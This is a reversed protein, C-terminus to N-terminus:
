YRKFLHQFFSLIFIGLLRQSVDAFIELCSFLLYFYKKEKKLIYIATHMGRQTVLYNFNNYKKIKLFYTVTHIRRQTMLDNFNNYQKKDKLTPGNCNNKLM